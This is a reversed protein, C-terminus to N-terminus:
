YLVYQVFYKGSQKVFVYLLFFFKSLDEVEGARHIIICKCLFQSLVFKSLIRICVFTCLVLLDDECIWFVYKNSKQSKCM